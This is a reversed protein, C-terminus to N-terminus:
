HRFLSKPQQIVNCPVLYCIKRYYPFIEYIDPYFDQLILIRIHRSLMSHPSWGPNEMQAVVSPLPCKRHSSLLHGILWMGWYFPKLKHPYIWSTGNASLNINSTLYKILRIPGGSNGGVFQLWEIPSHPYNNRLVLRNNEVNKCLTVVRSPSGQWM